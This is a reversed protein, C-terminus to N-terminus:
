LQGSDDVGDDYDDDNMMAKGKRGWVPVFNAGEAGMDSLSWLVAIKWFLMM